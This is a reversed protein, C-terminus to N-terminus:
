LMMLQSVEDELGQTVTENKSKESTWDEYLKENEKELKVLKRECEESKTEVESLKMRVNQHDEVLKEYKIEIDQKSAKVSNLDNLSNKLENCNADFDKTIAELADGCKSLKEDTARVLRDHVIFDEEFIQNAEKLEFNETKLTEMLSEMKVANAKTVNLNRDSDEGNFSLAELRENANKLKSELNTIKNELTGIKMKFGQIESENAILMGANAKIESVLNENKILSEEMEVKMENNVNILVGQKEKTSKLDDESKEFKKEFMKLKKELTECKRCSLDVKEESKEFLARKNKFQHQEFDKMKEEYKLNQKNCSQVERELDKVKTVLDMNKVDKTESEQTLKILRMNADHYSNEFKAIDTELVEVQRMREEIETSKIDIVCTKVKINDKLKDNDNECM